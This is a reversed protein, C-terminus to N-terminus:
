LNRVSGALGNMAAQMMNGIFGPMGAGAM